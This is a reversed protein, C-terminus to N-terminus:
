SLRPQARRDAAGPGGARRRLFAAPDDRRWTFLDNGNFSSDTTARVNRTNRQTDPLLMGLPRDEFRWYAVVHQDRGAQDMSRIFSEGTDEMLTM